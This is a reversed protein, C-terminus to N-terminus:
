PGKNRNYIQRKVIKQVFEILIKAPILPRSTPWDITIAKESTRIDKMSSQIKPLLFALTIINKIRGKIATEKASKLNLQYSPNIFLYGAEIKTPSM